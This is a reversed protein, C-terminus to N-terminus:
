RRMVKGDPRVYLTGPALAMAEAISAVRVPQQETLPDGSFLEEVADPDYKNALM